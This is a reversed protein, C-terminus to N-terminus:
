KARKFIYCVRQHQGNELTPHTEQSGNCRFVNRWVPLPTTRRLPCTLHCVAHDWNLFYAIPSSSLSGCYVPSSCAGPAAAPCRLNITQFTPLKEDPCKDYSVKTLNMIDPGLYIYLSKVIENINGKKFTFSRWSNLPKSFILSFVLNENCM